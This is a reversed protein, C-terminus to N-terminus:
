RRRTLLSRLSFRATSRAIEQEVERTQEAPMVALSPVMARLEATTLTCPRCQGLKVTGDDSASLLWRGDASFQVRNVADGHWRLVALPRGSAANWVRITRDASSTAILTGDPSFTASSLAASHGGGLIRSPQSADMSWIRATRDEGASVLWKGDRSFEVSRVAGQHGSLRRPGAAIASRRWLAIDNADIAAIWEGDPSMAATTYNKGLPGLRPAPRVPDAVHAFPWVVVSGNEDLTLLEDLRTAFVADRHNEMWDPTIERGSKVDWLVM